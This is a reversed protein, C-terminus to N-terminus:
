NVPSNDWEESRFACHSCSANWSPTCVDSPPSAKRGASPICPPCPSHTQIRNKPMDNEVWSRTRCRTRPILSFFFFPYTSQVWIQVLCLRCTTKGIFVGLGATDQFVLFVLRVFYACIWMQAVVSTFLPWILSYVILTCDLCRVLGFRCSFFLIVILDPHFGNHMGYYIWICVFLWEVAVGCGSWRVTM